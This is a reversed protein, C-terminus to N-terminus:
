FPLEEHEEDAKQAIVSIMQQVYEFEKDGNSKGDRALKEAVDSATPMEMRDVNLCIVRIKSGGVSRRVFNAPKAKEKNSKDGDIYGGIELAKVVSKIDGFAEGIWEYFVLQSLVIQIPTNNIWVVKGITGRSSTIPSEFKGANRNMDNHAPSFALGDTELVKSMILNSARECLPEKLNELTTSKLLFNAVHTYELELGLLEKGLIAATVIVALTRSFRQALKDPPAKAQVEALVENYVAKLQKEGFALIKKIFRHGITGHQHQIFDMVADSHSADQTWTDSLEIVRIKAGEPTNEGLISREGTSVIVTRWEREGFESTEVESDTYRGKEHGASLIYGVEDKRTFPAVGSEDLGFPYGHVACLNKTINNQTQNYSRNLGMNSTKEPDSFMSIALSTSTTKGSTSESVMHVVITNVENIGLIEVLPAALGISVATQLPIWGTILGNIGAIAKDAHGAMSLLLKGDYHISRDPEDAKTLAYDRCVFIWEGNRRLWGLVPSLDVVPLYNGQELIYEIIHKIANKDEFPAGKALHFDQLKRDELHSRPIEETVLQGYAYYEIM